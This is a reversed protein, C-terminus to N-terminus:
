AKASHAAGHKKDTLRVPRVEIRMGKIRPIELGMQLALMVNGEIVERLNERAEEIDAGQSYFGSAKPVSAIVLGNEDRSYKAQKLALEVYRAHSFVKLKM